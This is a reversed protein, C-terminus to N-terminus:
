SVKGIQALTAAAATRRKTATLTAFPPKTIIIVVRPYAEPLLCRELVGYLQRRFRNRAVASKAVKKGVVVAGKLAPAPATIITLYQSHHKRGTEFYHMFESRSLRHQKKLMNVM